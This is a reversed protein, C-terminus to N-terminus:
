APVEPLKAAAELASQWIFLKKSGPMDHFPLKRAFARRQVQRFTYRINHAVFWQYAERIDLLNDNKKSM